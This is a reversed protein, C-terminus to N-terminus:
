ALSKAYKETESFLKEIDAKIHATSLTGNHTPLFFVGNTILKSHYEALKKRDARFVANADKLEEKTFHVNFISGTGTVQVNIGNAEFIKRLQERIKDGLRNLKNILKGDELLKLTALGATMTIPNAAFTGGHFSYQPRQYRLNDVKEMIETPGCFAGIPFGGGLIKGLVTIDPRVGFYQEVGGPALRFGTIVEDVILLTGKEDCLERLGKLFEKEAFVGGGVGLVPEILIAAVEENKLKMKVGEINNYPLVITDQLAGSTLGASEPVDFPPKVAVHLADYGGHWGGEFKAIKNKGTYARALRIAYMNAETGSNTFRVMKANSIMKTVQEALAIELEHAVGYHTGNEIQRKVAKMVAPPSHGLILATHGLWFDIYSNGDVDYLKSGKAKAVYFPYPEFYRIAYSVGAPLVRKAREYLAKSKQTKSIYDEFM